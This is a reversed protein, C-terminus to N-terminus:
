SSQAVIHLTTKTRELLRKMRVSRCHAELDWGSNVGLYDVAMLRQRKLSRDARKIDKVRSKIFQQATPLLPPNFEQLASNLENVAKSLVGEISGTALAGLLFADSTAFSPQMRCSHRLMRQTALAILHTYGKSSWDERWDTVDDLLQVGAALREIARWNIRRNDCDSLVSVQRVCLKLVALKRAIGASSYSASSTRASKRHLELAAGIATETLFRDIGQSISKQHRHDVGELVRVVGRQLLTGAAVTVMDRDIGDRDIADDVLVIYAYILSWGNLASKVRPDAMDLPAQALLTPACEGLLFSTKARRTRLRYANKAVVSLQKPLTDIEAYLRRRALLAASRMLSHQTVTSCLM